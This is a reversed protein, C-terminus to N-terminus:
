EERMALGVAVGYFSSYGELSKEVAPDLKVKGFPNGVVTEIGTAETLYTVLDPMTTSGGTIIISTPATGKSDTQYFHISKKIEDIIMRIVPELANKVRGELQSSSMGYTKKYEEAQTANIGLGQAVARTLAEGAVPISRSFNLNSDSVIAIDTSTVGLDVLLSVGKDPSLARSLAILETEATLPTLGALRFLKVYKEVVIKPAAVLLVTVNPSKEDNDLITHQIVAEAAPIPIYQEAEWKVAASVEEVSLKPFKIVRSFVLAEPISIVVENQTIGVQKVLKKVIQALSEFESDVTMKDPSKGTYGVVGSSKLIWDPGQKDLSIVKITKSGIDIGIM